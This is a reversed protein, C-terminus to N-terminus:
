TAGSPTIAPGSAAAVSGSQTAGSVIGADDLAESVRGRLERAVRWQAASTTKVTVRLTLGNSTIQEVGLSEPPALLDPKWSDEDALGQAAEHMAQQAREIDTGFPVPVDINVVAWGQSKNGVRSIEGNRLYWVVGQADRLTTVRLGIAEVTGSAEGLDVVDGVGYQDELMMFMGSLFDKVLNQAGFGFALGAIGASALLPAVPIGMKDLVMMTAVTFITASSISRLVSGLTRVRQRRRESLVGAAELMTARERLPRLLAPTRAETNGATFRAIARNVLWRLALAGLVIGLISFIRTVGDWSSLKALKAVGTYDWVISCLSTDGKACDPKDDVLGGKKGPIPAGLRDAAIFQQFAASPLAGLVATSLSVGREYRV